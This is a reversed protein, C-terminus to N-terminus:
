LDIKLLWSYSEFLMIESIPLGLPFYAKSINLNIFKFVDSTVNRQVFNGNEHDISIKILM